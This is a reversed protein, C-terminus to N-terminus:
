YYTHWDDVLSGIEGTIPNLERGEGFDQLYQYSIYNFLNGNKDKDWGFSKFMPTHINNLWKIPPNTDQEIEVQKLLRESVFPPIELIKHISGDLNFVVANCPPKYEGNLGQYIAIIYNQDISPYAFIDVNDDKIIIRNGNYLWSVGKSSGDFFISNEPNNTNKYVDMPYEIDVPIVIGSRNFIKFEQIM